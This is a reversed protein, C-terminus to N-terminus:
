APHSPLGAEADRIRWNVSRVLGGPPAIRKVRTGAVSARALTCSTLLRASRTAEASAGTLTAFRASGPSFGDKREGSPRRRFAKQRLRGPAVRAGYQVLHTAACFGATLGLNNVLQAVERAKSSPTVTDPSIAHPTLQEYREGAARRFTKRRTAREDRSLCSLSTVWSRQAVEGGARQLRPV